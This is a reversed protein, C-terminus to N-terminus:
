MILGPGPNFDQIVPFFFVLQSILEPCYLGMAQKLIFM